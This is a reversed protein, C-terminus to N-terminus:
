EMWSACDETSCRGWVHGNGAVSYALRGGCNPCAIEGSVRCRGNTTATIAARAKGTRELAASQRAENAEAEERAPYDALSCSTVAGENICPWRYPSVSNDRVSLYSVGAACEDNQIGTFHRCRKMYRQINEERWNRVM